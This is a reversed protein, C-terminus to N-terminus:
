GAISQLLRGAKELQARKRGTEDLAPDAFRRRRLLAPLFDNMVICCWKLRFVPLLLRTREALAGADPSYKLASSLFSEFHDQSVRIEPQSFFDSVTKAPDDWGAYEFDIFTVRGGPTVIANHFGFDSPSVCRDAPALASQRDLGRQEFESLVRSRLAAWRDRLRAALAIAQRDVDTTAPILSLREVRGQVLALHDALSFCSEAANPLGAALARKAPENLSVLFQRAQEVHGPAVAGPSLKHGDIFEYLAIGAQDDRAVPRPVCDIGAARAYELFSYEASLRDRDDSAHRYYCKAVLARGGADVRLVRNNGGPACSEVRLGDTRIQAAALLERIASILEADEM